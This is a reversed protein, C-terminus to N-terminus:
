LFDSIKKIPTEEKFSAKWLVELGAEVDTFLVGDEFHNFSASPFRDKQQHKGAPSSTKKKLM